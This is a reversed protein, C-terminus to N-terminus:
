APGVIVVFEGRIKEPNETFYREALAAPGRFVEEYVKTLERCVAITRNLDLHKTLSQLTKMIRHPSEYFVATRKQDSIENFITERGKKHPLFGYFIFENTPLGAVSLAATLASPGPVPVIEAEPLVARIRSVLATGPDSIGPTGADSILALNKGSELLRIIKDTKGDSSQAHFSDTPTHINFHTLLKRGERTDECFVADVEQLTRTARITMDELNGIPTAVIFLKGTM